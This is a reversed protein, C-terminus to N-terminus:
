GKVAGAIMGNVIYDQGFIFILIVPVVCCTAGALLPGYELRESTVIMSIGIQVTRMTDTNTVLLPWLFLNYINIFLYLGLSAITPVSLPVAIKFLFGMDTCGDITAADKLSRPITLYYQRMMFIATGSILTPFVLALYTDLLGLKQILSYNMIIVIDSPIMMTALVVSFLQKKGPFEFFSFGYAALSSLTIQSAISIFCVILSNKVYTFFPMHTLVWAYHMLTPTKTFLTPPTVPIQTEPKFSYFICFILPM